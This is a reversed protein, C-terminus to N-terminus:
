VDIGVYHGDVLQPEGTHIGIRSTLATGDHDGQVEKAATVADAARPFAFFFSDGQSDVELGGHRQCAARLSERHAALAKAYGDTGLDRLVRTSGEVDTFLLTVTGSPLTAM